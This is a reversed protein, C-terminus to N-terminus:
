ANSNASTNWWSFVANTWRIMEKRTPHVNDPRKLDLPRSDFYHSAHTQALLPTVEGTPEHCSMDGNKTKWCSQGLTPPGIWLVKAGASKIKSVLEQSYKQAKPAYGSNEYEDNTGLVILVLQPHKTLADDLEVALTGKTFAAIKVGGKAVTDFTSGSEEVLKKVPDKLGVALSDGILLVRQGRPITVQKGPTAEPTNGQTEVQKTSTAAAVQTSAETRPPWAIKKLVVSTSSASAVPASTAPAASARAIPKKPAESKSAVVTATSTASAAASPTKTESAAQGLMLLTVAALALGCLKYM